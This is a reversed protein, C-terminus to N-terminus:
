YSVLYFNHYLQTCELTSYTLNTEVQENIVLYSRPLNIWM